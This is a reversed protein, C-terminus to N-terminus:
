LAQARSAGELDTNVVLEDVRLQRRALLDVHVGQLINKLGVTDFEKLLLRSVLLELPLGLLLRDLLQSLLLNSLLFRCHVHHFAHRPVFGSILAAWAKVIEVLKM